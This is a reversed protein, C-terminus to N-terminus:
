NVYVVEDTFPLAQAYLEWVTLPTREVATGENQISSKGSGGKGGGAALKAAKESGPALAKPGPAPHATVAGSTVSTNYFQAALQVEMPKADRQYLAEYLALGLFPSM